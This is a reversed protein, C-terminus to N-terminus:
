DEQENYKDLCEPFYVLGPTTMLIFEELTMEPVWYTGDM